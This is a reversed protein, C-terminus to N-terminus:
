RVGRQSSGLLEIIWGDRFRDLLASDHEGLEELRLNTTCVTILERDYRTYLLSAVAMHGAPGTQRGFDDLALFGVREVRELEVSKERDFTLATLSSATLWRGSKGKRLAARDLLETM